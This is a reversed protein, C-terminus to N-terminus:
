SNVQLGNLYWTDLYWHLRCWKLLSHKIIVRDVLHSKATECLKGASSHCHIMQIPNDIMYHIQYTQWDTQLIGIYIPTGASPVDKNLPLLKLVHWTKTYHIDFTQASYTDSFTYQWRLFDTNILHVHQLSKMVTYQNTDFPIENLFKLICKCYFPTYTFIKKQWSM